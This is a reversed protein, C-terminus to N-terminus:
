RKFRTEGRNKRGYWFKLDLASRILGTKQIDFKSLFKKMKVEDYHARTLDPIESRRIPLRILKDHLDLIEKHEKYVEKWRGEKVVEMARKKGLGKVGKLNNHTGKLCSYQIWGETTIGFDREFTNHNYFRNHRVLSVNKFQLLQFLDDDNSKVIIQKFDKTFARCMTFMLDDAEFGDVMWHCFGSLAVFERCYTYSENVLASIFEDRVKEKYETYFKSRIYPKADNCFAVIDPKFRTISSSMLQIFGYLGGTFYDKYSLSKHSHVSIHLLNNFDFILLKM